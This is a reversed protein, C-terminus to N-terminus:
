RNFKWEVSWNDQQTVTVRGYKNFLFAFFITVFGFPIRLNIWNDARQWLKGITINKKSGVSIITRMGLMRFVATQMKFLNQTHRAHVERLTRIWGGTWTLSLNFHSDTSQWKNQSVCSWVVSRMQFCTKKSGSSSIVSSTSAIGALQRFMIDNSHSSSSPTLVAAASFHMFKMLETKRQSKKWKRASVRRLASVFRCM